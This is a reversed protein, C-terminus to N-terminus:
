KKIKKVVWEKDKSQTEVLQVKFYKCIADVKDQLIDIEKELTEPEWGVNWSFISAYASDMLSQTTLGTKKEFIRGELNEIREGLEKYKNRKLFKMIKKFM